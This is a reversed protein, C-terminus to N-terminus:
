GFTLTVSEGGAYERPYGFIYLPEGMHPQAM